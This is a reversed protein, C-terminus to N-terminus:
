NETTGAAQTFSFPYQRQVADVFGDRIMQIMFEVINPDFQKGSNAQLEEIIADMSMCGRYCRNSSMADFADAICIIRAVLPIHIGKLGEPYGTGDYREHHYHAGDQIGPIATFNELMRAGLTTHERIRAYEEDTLGASKKLVADSIGIKGCDHLVSTYYIHSISDSDLGMRFAIEVSYASVRQSHGRTYSDKADIFSAFTQMAQNIIELSEAQRKMLSRTRFHTLIQTVVLIVWVVALLITLYFLPTTYPNVIHHGSVTYAIPTLLRRSYMVAGFTMATDDDPTFTLTNGSVVFQGNWSSDILPPETFTVSVTWDRFNLEESLALVGDYQAGAPTNPHLSEDTWQKSVAMSFSIGDQPLPNGPDYQYVCRRNSRNEAFFINLPYCIVIALTLIVMLVRFIARNRQLLSAYDAMLEFAPIDHRQSKSNTINMHIVSKILIQVFAYLLM